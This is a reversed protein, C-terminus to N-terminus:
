TRLIFIGCEACYNNM